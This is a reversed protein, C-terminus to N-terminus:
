RELITKVTNLLELLNFPKMICAAAGNELLEHTPGVATVVLIPTSPYRRKIRRTLELGDMKPMMYDTIVLDYPRNEIQNIAEVGNEAVDIEYDYTKLAQALVNRVAKEDEAILVRKRKRSM